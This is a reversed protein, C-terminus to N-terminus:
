YISPLCDVVKMGCFHEVSSLHIAYFCFRSTILYFHCVCLSPFLAFSLLVVEGAVGIERDWLLWCAWFCRVCVHLFVDLSYSQIKAGGKGGGSKKGDGTRGHRDRLEVMM